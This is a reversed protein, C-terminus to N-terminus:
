KDRREFASDHLMAANRKLPDPSGASFYLGNLSHLETPITDPKPLGITGARRSRFDSGIFKIPM